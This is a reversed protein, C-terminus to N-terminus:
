GKIIDLLRDCEIWYQSVYITFASLYGDMQELWAFYYSELLAIPARLM